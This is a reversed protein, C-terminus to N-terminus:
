FVSTGLGELDINMLTPKAKYYKHCLDALNITMVGKIPKRKSNNEYFNAKTGSVNTLGFNLATV